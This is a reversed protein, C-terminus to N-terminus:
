HICTALAILTYEGEDLTTYVTIDQNFNDLLSQEKYALKEDKDYILCTIRLHSDSFMDFDGSKLATFGSLITSPSIRISVGKHIEVEPNTCGFLCSLAAMVAVTRSFINTKM